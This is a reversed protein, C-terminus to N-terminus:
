RGDTCGRPRQEGMRARVNELAETLQPLNAEWALDVNRLQRDSATTMWQSLQSSPQTALYREIVPELREFRLWAPPHDGLTLPPSSSRPKAVRGEALSRVLEQDAASPTLTAKKGVAIYKAGEILEQCKFFFLVSRLSYQITEPKMHSSETWDQLARILLQVGTQDADMEEQWSPVLVAFSPAQPDCDISSGLRRRGKESRHNRILHGYEHGVAFLEMGAVLTSTFLDYDPPSTLYPHPTLLLFGLVALLYRSRFEQGEFSVGPSSGNATWITPVFLHAMGSDFKMLETNFGIVSDKGELVPYTYANAESTPLSGFKPSRDLPLALEKRAREIWGKREGISWYIQRSEYCTPLKLKSIREILPQEQGHPDIPSDGGREELRKRTETFIRRVADPENDKRLQQLLQISAPNATYAAYQIREFERYAPDTACPTFAPTEAAVPAALFLAAIWPRVKSSIRRM